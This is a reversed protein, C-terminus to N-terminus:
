KMTYRTYKLNLSASSLTVSSISKLFVDGTVQDPTSPLVPAASLAYVTFTYVKEGPGKSCPPQYELAPVSTESGAGLVGVGSSNKMLGTVANPIGHLVWNWKMKGDVPTTSMLVAFEKTGSPAHGWSLQPSVGIGDCTYEAPLQGSDTGADSSIEFSQNTETNVQTGHSASPNDAANNILGKDSSCALVGPKTDCIGKAIQGKNSFQCADGTKKNTCATIAAEPPMHSKDQSVERVAGVVVIIFFISFTILLIKQIKTIKNSKKNPILNSM